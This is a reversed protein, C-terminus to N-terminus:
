SNRRTIGTVPLLLTTRTKEGEIKMIESNVLGKGVAYQGEPLILVRLAALILWPRYTLM